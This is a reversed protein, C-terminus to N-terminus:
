GSIEESDVVLANILALSVANKVYAVLDKRQQTTSRMNTRFEIKGINQFAKKAPPTFGEVNAGAVAELVPILVDIKVARQESTDATRVILKGFGMPVGSVRDEYTSVNGDNSKVAFTHAVPTTAGDNLIINAFTAM